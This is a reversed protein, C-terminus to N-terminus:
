ASPGCALSPSFVVMEVHKLSKMPVQADLRARGVGSARLMAGSFTSPATFANSSGVVFICAGAILAVRM